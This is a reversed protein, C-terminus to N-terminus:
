QARLKREGVEIKQRAGVRKPEGLLSFAHIRFVWGEASPSLPHLGQRSHAAEPSCQRRVAGDLMRPFPRDRMSRFILVQQLYGMFHIVRSRTLTSRTAQGQSILFNTSLSASSTKTGASLTM